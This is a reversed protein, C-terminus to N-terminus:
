VEQVLESYRRRFQPEGQEEGIWVYVWPVKTHDKQPSEGAYRMQVWIPTGKRCERKLDIVTGGQHVLSSLIPDTSQEQQQGAFIQLSLRDADSNLEYRRKEGSEQKAPLILDFRDELRVYYADVAHEELVFDARDRLFSYIAAGSVVAHDPPQFVWVHDNPWYERLVEPIL